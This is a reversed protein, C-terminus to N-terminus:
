IVTILLLLDVFVAYHISHALSYVKGIHLESELCAQEARLMSLIHDQQKSVSCITSLVQEPEELEITEDVNKNSHTRIWINLDDRCAVADLLTLLFL